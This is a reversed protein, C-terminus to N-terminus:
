GDPNAAYVTRNRGENKARYLAEDALTFIEDVEGQLSALGISATAVIISGEHEIASREIALRLREAIALAREHGADPLLVAFEEGGLRGAIDNQRLMSRMLQALHILVKDGAAHGYTDNISKFHDLDLVLLAGDALGQGARRLEREMGQLFARRNALGTLPDTAALRELNREHERRETIDTVIWLKGADTDKIRIPIQNIQLTRGDAMILESIRRNGERREEPPAAESQLDLLQYFRGRETGTLSDPPMELGFLDCLAQNVVLIKGDANELLVGGPFHKIVEILRVRAASLAIEMQRRETIDILTWIIDGDPREADLLTGHISFWHLQGNADPFPHEAEVAGKNQRLLEVQELLDDAGEEGGQLQRFPIRKLPRGGAFLEKARRNALRIRHDPGVLLIAAANNDLLANRLQAETVRQSIDSQTGLVRKGKEDEVARGRIETWLWDGTATRLRLELRFMEGRSVENIVKDLSARDNPHVQEYWHAFTTARDDHEHGLMRMCREDFYLTDDVLHWEWLGDHVADITLRLRATSDRLRDNIAHQRSIDHIYGHWLVSGAVDPQPNAYGAVWRIEGNPFLLRFKIDWPTLQAASEAILAIAEPRDEPHIIDFIEPLDKIVQAPSLGILTEIGQSIYVMESTGDPWRRFQYVAGPVQALLRSLREENWALNRQEFRLRGMLVAISLAALLIALTSVATWFRSKTFRDTVPSLATERDLGVSIALPYDDVWRWAYDRNIGDWAPALRYKGGGAGTAMSAQLAGSVQNGIIEDQRTSRALYYSRENFM